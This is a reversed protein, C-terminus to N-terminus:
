LNSGCVVSIYSDFGLDLLLVVVFLALFVVKVLDFGHKELFRLRRPVVRLFVLRQVWLRKNLSM